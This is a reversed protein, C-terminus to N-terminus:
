LFYHIALKKLCFLRSKKEYVSSLEESFTIKKMGNKVPVATILIMCFDIFSMARLLFALGLM